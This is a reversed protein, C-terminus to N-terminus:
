PKCQRDEYKNLESALYEAEERTAGGLDIFPDYGDGPGEGERKGLFWEDVGCEVAEWQGKM